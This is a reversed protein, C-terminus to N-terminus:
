DEWPVATYVWPRTPTTISSLDATKQKPLNKASHSHCDAGPAFGAFFKRIRDILGLPEDSCFLPKIMKGENLETRRLIFSILFGLKM